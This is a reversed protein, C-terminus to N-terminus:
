WGGMSNSAAKRLRFSKKSAQNRTWNKPRVVSAYARMGAEVALMHKILNNNKVFETVIAYAEARNM